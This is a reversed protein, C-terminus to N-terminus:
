LCRIAFLELPIFLFEPIFVSICDAFARQTKGQLIEDAFGNSAFNSVKLVRLKYDTRSFKTFMEFFCQPLM